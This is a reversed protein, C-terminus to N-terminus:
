REQKKGPLLRKRYLRVQSLFKQIVKNKPDHRKVWEWQAIADEFQFRGMFLAGLDIRAQLNHPNESLARTLQSVSRDGQDIRGLAKGLERFAAKTDPALRLVTEWERIAAEWRRERSYIVGMMHHAYLYGSEIELLSQFAEKAGQLDQQEFRIKGLLEYAELNGPDDHFIRKLYRQAMRSHGQLHCSLALNFCLDSIDEPYVAERLLRRYIPVAMQPRNQVLHINALIFNGRHDDPSVALAKRIWGSAADYQKLHLYVDVLEYYAQLFLPDREIASRLHQTALLWNGRRRAGIASHLSQEPSRAM